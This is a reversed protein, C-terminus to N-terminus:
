PWPRGEFARALAHWMPKRRQGADLPLPRASGPPGRMEGSPTPIPPGENAWTYRDSLGWCLVADGGGAELVTSVFAHVLAANQADRAAPDSRTEPEVVDLETIPVRLDLARLARVFAALKPASFADEPRLHGQLGVADLPVGRDRMGRALELVRRRKEDDVPTDQECGYDNYTLM